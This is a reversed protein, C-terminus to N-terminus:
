QEILREKFKDELSLFADVVAPDFHKGRAQVIIEKAVDHSYADKYIRKSTLADYVDALAVIRASLPIETGKLGFPYGSGDWKEHHCYAINKGMSLFSKTKYKLQKEADELTKGGIITHNKMIEFEEVTLKGPKLLIKDSIGVKGIDHLPSSHYINSIYKKDIYGKFLKSHSLKKAILFSYKRIRNLHEGTDEDRSEALRALGFITVHQVKKIEITRKVVKEELSNKLMNLEKNTKVLQLNLDNIKNAKEVITKYLVDQLSDSQNKLYSLFKKQEEESLYNLLGYYIQDISGKIANVCERLLYDADNLNYNTQKDNM